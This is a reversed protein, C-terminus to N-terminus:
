CNIAIPLQELAIEYHNLNMMQLDIGGSKNDTSKLKELSANCTNRSKTEFGTRDLNEEKLTNAHIENGVVQQAVPDRCM